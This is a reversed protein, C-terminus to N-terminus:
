CWCRASYCRRAWRSPWSLGGAAARRAAPEHHPLASQALAAGHAALTPRLGLAGAFALPLTPVLLVVGLYSQAERYTRTYAAVITMLAAALPVFPLCYLILRLAVWPGFNVSM